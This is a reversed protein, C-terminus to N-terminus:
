SCVYCTDLILLFFTWDSHYYLHALRTRLAMQVRRQMRDNYNNGVGDSM